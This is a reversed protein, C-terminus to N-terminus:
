DSDSGDGAPTEKYARQREARRQACTRLFYGSLMAFVGAIVLNMVVVVGTGSDLDVFPVYLVMLGATAVSFGFLLKFKGTSKCVEDIYASGEADDSM